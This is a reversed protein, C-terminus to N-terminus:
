ARCRRPGGLRGAIIGNAEDEHEIRTGAAALIM